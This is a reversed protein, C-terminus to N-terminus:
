PQVGYLEMTRNMADLARAWDVALPYWVELPLEQEEWRGGRRGVRFRQVTPYGSAGVEEETLGYGVPVIDEAALYQIHEVFVNAIAKTPFPSPAPDCAVPEHRVSGDQALGMQVILDDLEELDLEM